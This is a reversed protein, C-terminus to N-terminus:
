SQKPKVECKDALTKVREASPSKVYLWNFLLREISKESLEVSYEEMNVIQVVFYYSESGLMMKVPGVCGYKSGKYKTIETWVDPLFQHEYDLFGDERVLRHDKSHKVRGGTDILGGISAFRENLAQAADKQEQSDVVVDRSTGSQLLQVANDADDKSTYVFVRADILREGKSRQTTEHQMVHEALNGESCQERLQTNWIALKANKVADETQKKVLEKYRPDREIKEKYESSDVIHLKVRQEVIYRSAQQVAEGQPINPMSEAIRQMVPRLEGFTVEVEGMEPSNIVLVARDNLELEEQMPKRELVKRALEVVKDKRDAASTKAKKGVGSKQNPSKASAPKADASASGVVTVLACCAILGFGLVKSNMVYFKLM